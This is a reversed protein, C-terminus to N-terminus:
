GISPEWRSINHTSSMLVSTSAIWNWGGSRAMALSERYSIGLEHLWVRSVLYWSVIAAFAATLAYFVRWATHDQLDRAVNFALGCFLLALVLVIVIVRINPGFTELPPGLSYNRM